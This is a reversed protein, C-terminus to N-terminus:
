QNVAKRAAATGMTGIEKAAGEIADDGNTLMVDFGLEAFQRATSKKM